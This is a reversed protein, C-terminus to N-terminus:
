KLRKKHAAKMQEWALGATDANFVSGVNVKEHKTKKLADARELDEYVKFWLEELEDENTRAVLESILSWLIRKM